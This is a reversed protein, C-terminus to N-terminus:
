PRATPRAAQLLARDVQRALLAFAIEAVVGCTDAVMHAVDYSRGPIHIQVFELAVGLPVMALATWTGPWLRFGLVPIFALGFYAAFHLIKDSIHTAGIWRIPASSGPLTEGWVVV